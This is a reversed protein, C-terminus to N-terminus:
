PFVTRGGVITQLIRIDKIKLPDSELPNEELVVFDALKGPEISGKIHDEFNQWAADITVAKLADLPAIRQAEGIVKGSRSRRNVGAWVSFLPDITTVPTDNHLTFRIGRALASALPSMHSARDPGMFIRTHRDGWYFTHSVFFSPSVGMEQMRDLQDERAMQCHEIRHRTDQRPHKKQAEAYAHLIQDIAADGNGHIAVQQGDRHAEEVMRCLAEPSRMPYGRYTKDGGFPVHYPKGLYGTYGQISGDQWIKVAGLRMCESGFGSMLGAAESPAPKEPVDQRAMCVLRLPLLDRKIGRQLRILMDRDCGAIVATTVGRSAYELVAHRLGTFWDEESFSPVAAKVIDMATEELVGDPEGSDKDVRIVGGEPQPPDTGIGVRSLTRSNAVGLHGSTHQIWVHHETSVRDLELRTPHRGEEILTDDYGYGLVWGGKPVTSAKERLTEILDSMREVPGM